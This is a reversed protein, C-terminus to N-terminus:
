DGSVVIRRQFDDMDPRKGLTKVESVHNQFAEMIVNPSDSEDNSEPDSLASNPSAVGGEECRCHKSAHLLRRAKLRRLLNEVREFRAVLNRTRSEATPMAGRRHCHNTCRSCQSTANRVAFTQIRLCHRGRNNESHALNVLRQCFSSLTTIQKARLIVRIQCLRMGNLAPKLM